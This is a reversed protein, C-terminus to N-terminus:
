GLRSKKKSAILSGQPRSAFYSEISRVQSRLRHFSKGTLKRGSISHVKAPNIPKGWRLVEHHLHPGTCLGTSGVHGITDGMKVRAGRRAKPLIKQLHAYLTTYESNHRIMICNGYGGKWGSYIVVGDGASMVRTGPAARFDVGAHFRTHKLVPHPRPGFGSSMVASDVPTRLLGKRLSSGDEHYYAIEGNSKKMMYIRIPDGGVTVGVYTLDGFKQRNASDELRQFVVEFFDDKKFDDFDVTHSLIQVMQKVVASPVGAKTADHYLSSRIRGSLCETKKKIKLNLKQASFKGEELALLRIEQGFDPKFSLEKFFGKHKRVQIELGSVLEKQSCVKLLSDSARSLSDKPIGARLLIKRLTERKQIRIKETEMIKGSSTAKPSSDSPSDSYLPSSLTQDEQSSAQKSSTEVYDGLNQSSSFNSSKQSSSFSQVSKKISWSLGLSAGVLLLCFLSFQRYRIQYRGGYTSLKSFLQRTVSSEWM